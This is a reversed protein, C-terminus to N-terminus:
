DPTYDGNIEIVAKWKSPLRDLGRFLISPLIVEWQVIGSRNWCVCWLAREENNRKAFRLGKKQLKQPSAM